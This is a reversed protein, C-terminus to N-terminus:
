FFIRRGVTQWARLTSWHAGRHMQLEKVTTPKFQTTMMAAEVGGLAYVSINLGIAGIVFWSWWIYKGNPPPKNIDALPSSSPRLWVFYTWLYYAAFALPYLGRLTAPLLFAQTVRTPIHNLQIQAAWRSRSSSYFKLVFTLVYMSSPNSVSAYSV